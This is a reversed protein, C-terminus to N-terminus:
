KVTLGTLRVLLRRLLYLPLLLVLHVGASISFVFALALTVTKLPAAANQILWPGAGVILALGLLILFFLVVPLWARRDSASPLMTSSVAFLLYFWLWFDPRTHSAALTNWWTSYDEMSFTSIRLPVLAVYAVFASGALLPAIGILADRIFDTSTTEVYGLQLRGDPLPQPILSFGATRVGLLRAMLFHSTEHILVGPFFLLSFLALAIETRRTAILFIAQTEFHLRRQLFVLAVLLLILLGLGDFAAFV